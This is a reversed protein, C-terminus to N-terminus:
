HPQSSAPSSQVSFGYDLLHEADTVFSNSHMVVAILRRGGRTATAVTCGGANDTYATKMGTAGPYAMFFSHLWNVGDYAKHTRTAPLHMEPQDAIAVLAPYVTDITYATVALDYASSKMDPDDLGVPTTFHSDLMGISRAKENMLQIFRDRRIGIG